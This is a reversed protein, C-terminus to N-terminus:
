KWRRRGKGNPWIRQRHEEFGRAAREAQQRRREDPTVSAWEANRLAKAKKSGIALAAEEARERPLGGEFELIAAREEVEEVLSDPWARQLGPPPFPHLDAM